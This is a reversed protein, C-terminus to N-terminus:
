QEKTIIDQVPHVEWWGKDPGFLHGPDWREAGRVDVVQGIALTRATAKVSAPACPTVECHRFAGDSLRVIGFTVDGDEANEPVNVVRGTVTVDPNDIRVREGKYLPRAFPTFRFADLAKYALCRLNM